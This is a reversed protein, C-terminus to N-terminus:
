SAAGKRIWNLEWQMAPNTNVSTTAENNRVKTQNAALVEGSDWQAVGPTRGGPNYDITPSSLVMTGTGAPDEVRKVVLEAMMTNSNDAPAAGNGLWATLTIHNTDHNLEVQVTAINPVQYVDLGSDPYGELNVKGDADLPLTITLVRPTSDEVKADGLGNYGAGKATFQRRFIEDLEKELPILATLDGCVFQKPDTTDGPEAEMQECWFYNRSESTSTTSVTGDANTITVTTTIVDTWEYVNYRGRYEAKEIEEAVLRIASSLTLYKQQEVRNSRAKGANSVSAALISAAVMACVLFLLLALLISAGSQSHLKRRLGKM